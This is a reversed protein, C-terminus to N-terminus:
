PNPTTPGLPATSPTGFSSQIAAYRAPLGTVRARRSLDAYYKDEPVARSLLYDRRVRSAVDAFAMDHGADRKVLLLIYWQKNFEVPAKTFDGPKLGRLADALPKTNQELYPMPQPPVLGGQPATEANTSNAAAAEFFATKGATLDALVARAKDKSDLVIERFSVVEPVSYREKQNATFFTQLDADTVSVGQTRLRLDIIESRVMRRLAEEDLGASAMWAGAKELSGGFRETMMETLREDVESATPELRLREADQRNLEDIVLLQATEGGAVDQLKTYFRGYKVQQGNVTAFTEDIPAVAADAWLGAVVLLLGLLWGARLHARPALAAALARQEDSTLAGQALKARWDDKRRDQM